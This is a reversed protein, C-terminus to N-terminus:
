TVISFNFKAAPSNASKAYALAATLEAVVLNHDNSLLGFRTNQQQIHALLSTLFKEAEGVQLWVGEVAMLEETTEMGTPLEISGTNFLVDTTDCIELFSTYGLQQSITALKEAHKHLAPKDSEDSRVIGDELLNSWLVTSM